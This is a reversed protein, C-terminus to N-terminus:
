RSFDVGEYNAIIRRWEDPVPITSQSRYDYTVGVVEARAFLEGSDADEIVYDFTISKNGICATRTGVRVNQGLMIPAVYAIHIDAIIMQLDLFSKGDFLGLEMLYALRAEETYSMYRTNNVHWQPDLDSYRVKVPVYFKFDSMRGNYRLCKGSGM